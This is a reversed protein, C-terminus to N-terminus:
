SIKVLNKNFYKSFGRPIEKKFNRKLKKNTLKKREKKWLSKDQDQKEANRSVLLPFIILACFIILGVSALLIWNM